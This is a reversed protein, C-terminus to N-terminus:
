DEARMDSRRYRNPRSFEPQSNEVVPSPQAPAAPEEPTLVKQVVPDAEVTQRKVPKTQVAKTEDARARKSRIYRNMEAETDVTFSEGKAYERGQESIYVPRNAIMKFPMDIEVHLFVLPRLGQNM